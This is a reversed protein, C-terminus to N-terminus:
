RMSFRPLLLVSGCMTRSLWLSSRDKKLLSGSWIRFYRNLAYLLILRSCGRRNLYQLRKGRPGTRRVLILTKLFPFFITWLIAEGFPVLHIKHYRTIEDGGPVFLGASNWTRDTDFDISPLGTLVPVGISDVLSQVTRRYSPIDVIYVPVATEPWVILDPKYAMSEISMSCYLNINWEELGMGWKEEPSVNGQILAVRIDRGTDTPGHMVLWSYSVPVIFLLGLFMWRVPTRKKLILYLSVSVMAVWWSVGYVSTIDAFQILLPYGTQSNGIIMWPFALQDYSRIWEIGATLFPFMFLGM